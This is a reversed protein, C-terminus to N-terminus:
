MSVSRMYILPSTGPNEGEPNTVFETDMAELTAAVEEVTQDGGLTWPHQLAQAASYRGLFLRTLYVLGEKKQIEHM